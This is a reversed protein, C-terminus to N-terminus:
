RILGLERLTGQTLSLDEELFKKLREGGLVFPEWSMERLIKTWAASKVMKGITEEWFKVVDPPTDPPMYYGRWNLYVFDLGQEKATPVSRLVGGLRDPSLIALIRVQGAEHGGVMESLSGTLVTISGGLLQAMATAGDGFPVYRVKTADVGRRKAVLAFSLHDLGGPASGGGVTILGPDRRFVELLTGLNNFNSDKRVVVTQYDGTIAAIPTIDKFSYPVVQRALTATLASGMIAVSHTDGKRRTVFNSIAVAGSGGPMNIVAMPVTVLKEETLARVTMRATLDWGGGAGAPAVFELAKAPYAPGTIGTSPILLLLVVTLACATRAM